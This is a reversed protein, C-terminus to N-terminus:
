RGQPQTLVQVVIRQKLHVFGKACLSRLRYASMPAGLVVAVGENPVCDNERGEAIYQDAVELSDEADPFVIELAERDSVPAQMIFADVPENNYKDYNSYEM